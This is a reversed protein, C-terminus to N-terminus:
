YIPGLYEIRYTLVPQRGSCNSTASKTHTGSSKTSIDNQNANWNGVTDDAGNAGGDQDTLNGSIRFTSGFYRNFTNNENSRPIDSFELGGGSAVRTEPITVLRRTVLNDSQDGYIIDFRGTIDGPDIGADCDYPISVRDFHVRVQEGIPTRTTGTYECTKLDYETTRVIDAIQNDVLTRVEFSIPRYQSLDNDVEFYAQLNGTRIISEIGNNDGGVATIEIEATQLTELLEAETYGAIGGSVGEYSAQIAARMRSEEYTSTMKYLLIRGYTINSIYLPPNNASIYENDIDRQLLEKTYDDSFLEGPTVPLEMSVTFAKEIYYAYYTSEAATTDIEFETEFSGGLYEGSFGLDLTGQTSSHAESYEFRADSAYRVNENVANQILEGIATNVSTLSPLAVTRANDSTLLDISINLPARERVSLERLSGLSLHSNGQILNGLWMISRDPSIMIFEAPTNTLSYSEISCSYIDEDVVEEVNDRMGILENSNDEPPMLEDWTRHSYVETDVDAKNETTSTNDSNGGSGGGGCSQLVIISSFLLVTSLIKTKM